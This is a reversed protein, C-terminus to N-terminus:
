REGEEEGGVEMQVDRYYSCNQRVIRIQDRLLENETRLVAAEESVSACGSAVLAIALVVRGTASM